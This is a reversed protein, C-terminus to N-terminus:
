PSEGEHHQGHHADSDTPSATQASTSDAFFFSLNHSGPPHPEAGILTALRHNAARLSQELGVIMDPHSATIASIIRLYDKAVAV